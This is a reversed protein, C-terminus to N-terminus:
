IFFKGMILMKICLIAFCVFQRGLFTYGKPTVQYVSYKDTNNNIMNLFLEM